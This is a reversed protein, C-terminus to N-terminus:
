LIREISKVLVDGDKALGIFARDGTDIFNSLASLIFDLAICGQAVLLLTKQQEGGRKTSELDSGIAEEDLRHILKTLPLIEERLDNLSEKRQEIRDFISKTRARLEIFQTKYVKAAGANQALIPRSLSLIVALCLSIALRKKQLRM